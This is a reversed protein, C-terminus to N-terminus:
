RRKIIRKMDQGFIDQFEKRNILYYITLLFLGFVGILVILILRSDVANIIGCYILSLFIMFLYTM